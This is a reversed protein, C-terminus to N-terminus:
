ILILFFIDSSFLKFTESWESNKKIIMFKLPGSLTNANVGRKGSFVVVHWSIGRMSALQIKEGYFKMIELM